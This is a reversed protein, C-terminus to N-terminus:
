YILILLSLRLFLWCYGSNRPRTIIHWVSYQAIETHVPKGRQSFTSCEQSVKRLSLHPLVFFCNCLSNIHFFKQANGSGLFFEQLSKQYRLGCRALPYVPYVSILCLYECVLNLAGAAPRQRASCLELPLLYAIGGRGTSNQPYVSGRLAGQLVLTSRQM